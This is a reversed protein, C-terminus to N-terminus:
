RKGKANSKSNGTQDNGRRTRGLVAGAPGGLVDGFPKDDARDKTEQVSRVLAAYAADVVACIREPLTGSEIKFFTTLDAVQQKLKPYAPVPFDLKITAGKDKTKGKNKAKNDNGKKKGLLVRADTIGFHTNPYANLHEEIKSLGRSIRMYIQAMQLDLDCNAALWPEWDGHNLEEKVQELLDGARKAHKLPTRSSSLAGTHATNIEKALADLDVDPEAIATPGTDTPTDTTETEM